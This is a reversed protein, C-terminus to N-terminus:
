SRAENVQSQWWGEVRRRERQNLGRLFGVRLRKVMNCVMSCDGAFDIRNLARSEGGTEVVPEDEREEEEALSVTWVLVMDM